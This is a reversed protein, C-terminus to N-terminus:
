HYLDITNDLDNGCYKNTESMEYETLMAEPPYPLDQMQKTHIRGGYIKLGAKGIAVEILDIHSCKVRPLNYKKYIDWYKLGSNIIVDSLEKLAKVDYGEIAASLMIMDYATGNFTVFTFDSNQIFSLLGARNFGHYESMQFSKTKGSEFDKFKALYYNQYSEIDFAVLRKIM